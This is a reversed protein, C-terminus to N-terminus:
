MATERFEGQSELKLIVNLMVATTWRDRLRRYIEDLLPKKLAAPM